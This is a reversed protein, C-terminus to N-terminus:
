TMGRRKYESPCVPNSTGRLSALYIQKSVLSEPIHIVIYIYPYATEVRTVLIRYKQGQSVYLMPKSVRARAVLTTATTVTQLFAPLRGAREAM